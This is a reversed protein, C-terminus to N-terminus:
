SDSARRRSRAMVLLYDVRSSGVVIVGKICDALAAHDEEAFLVVQGVVQLLLEDLAQALQCPFRGRRCQMDVRDEVPGTLESVVWLDADDRGDAALLQEFVALLGVGAPIVGGLPVAVDLELGGRGVVRAQAQGLKGLRSAVRQPCRSVLDVVAEAPGPLFEELTQGGRKYAIAEDAGGLSPARRQVGFCAPRRQVDAALQGGHVGDDPRVGHSPPLADKGDPGKGLVDVLQSGLLAFLQQVLELGDDDVVVVQLHAELPAIAIIDTLKRTHGPPFHLEIYGLYQSCGAIQSM